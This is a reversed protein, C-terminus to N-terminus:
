TLHGGHPLRGGGEVVYDTILVAKDACVVFPGQGQIYCIRGPVGHLTFIDTRVGLFRVKCDGLMAWAGPYPRTLARILRSCQDATIFRFDLRGDNDNRQHWYGALNEDQIRTQLTGNDLADVVQAVLRPFLQNARAHVDAITDTTSIEVTGEALVPGTDIGDDVGIVSIAAQQEGAIIQWNLPSGGRYQPLRGGHLNITGLRPLGYTPKRLITSYGAVIFLTPDMSRTEALFEESNVDQVPRVPVGFRSALGDLGAVTKNAPIIVERVGHGLTCLHEVIPTGRDGNLFIHIGRM